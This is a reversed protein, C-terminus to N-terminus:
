FIACKDNHRLAYELGDAELFSTFAMFPRSASITPSTRERNGLTVANSQLLPIDIRETKLPIDTHFSLVVHVRLVSRISEM